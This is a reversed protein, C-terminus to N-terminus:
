FSPEFGSNPYSGDNNISEVNPYQQFYKLRNGYQNDNVEM